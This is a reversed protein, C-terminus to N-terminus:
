RTKDIAVLMRLEAEVRDIWLRMQMERFLAVASGLNAHADQDKGARRYLSGLGLHCRATLPRLGLNDAKQMAQHYLEAARPVDLAEHQTAVEAALRLAWAELGAEHHERTSRLADKALESAEEVAGMLFRAEGLWMIMQSHFTGFRMLAAQEIAERLISEAETFRASLALSYGLFSAVVPRLMPIDHRHCLDRAREFPGVAYGVDGQRVYFTGVSLLGAVLTQPHGIAEAFELAERANTEAEAFRGLESLSWSLFGRAYVAPRIAVGFSEHSREGPLLSIVRRASEICREHEGLFFYSAGLYTNALVGIDTDGLGFAIVRAREGYRAAQDPRGITPYAGAMLAAVLGQRRQDGLREAFSELEQLIQFIRPFEGLPILASRLDLRIDFAQAVAYSEEPSHRLSELAQDLYAVAERNASRAMAKHGAQWCYDVAELWRESRQTHHALQEVHEPLRERYLATFADVIRSHLARRREKLLSGYAVEHTLAHKFTYELDPFLSREYLFEGAQLRALSMRLDSESLDAILALLAAPVNKGIVAAAQLLQKDQQPLRDIRAALLPVLSPPIPVTPLPRALRYAGRTGTLVETEVLAKVSEEFFLPNGATQTWLIDKVRGLSPDDGLLINLLTEISEPLLPELRLETYLSKADWSHRHESRHSLIVMIRANSLADIIANLVADTESDAWNLDELALVVPQRQSELLLLRQIGDITRARRLLPDLAVWEPDDVPIDLLALFASVFPGLSSDRMHLHNAVQARIEDQDQREQIEFYKKLMDIIPAYSVEKAYSASQGELLSCGQTRDSHIFEWLLRSKGVGAEGIVGVVQGRAARAEDLARVLRQMQESRGVFPTLGRAAAAQLRSRAQGARAIEFVERPADFGKIRMPGMPNLVVYGDVLAATDATVLISGPAAAQEMRAALHTVQGVATYDMHLDSGISRVLVEGSNLGVRIRIAAGLARPLQAAYARVSEQMRLAAYAARVAHDELALPAGFLAMIGDGMVQNVLGDYQHVAAMMCQLVPDLIARAEEPDRATLLEMSNRLDALLVTVHKREGETVAATRVREALHTPTYADPTLVTKSGGSLFYGCNSCFRSDAANDKTCSPCIM